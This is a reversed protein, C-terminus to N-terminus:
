EYSRLGSGEITFTAGESEGSPAPRFAPDTSLDEADKAPLDLRALSAVQDGAHIPGKSRTLLATSGGGSARIVIAEGMVDPPLGQDAAYGSLADGQRFVAFRAGVDIGQKAGVDLYVLDQRGFEFRGTEGALITGRVDQPAPKVTFSDPLPKYPTVQDGRLIVNFSRIVECRSTHELVQIVKLQGKEAVRYGVRQDTGPRLVEGEPRFVRFNDGVRVGEASGRDIFVQVGAYLNESPNQSGIIRGAGEVEDSGVYGAERTRTYTVQEIPPTSAAPPAAEVVPRHVPQAAGPLSMQNGPYILNPNKIQANKEWVEPWRKGEGLKDAAIEWLTDGKKVTYVEMQGAAIALGVAALTALAGALPGAVANRTKM